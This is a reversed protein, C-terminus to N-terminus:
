YQKEWEINNKNLFEKFLNITEKGIGRFNLLNRESYLIAEGVTHVENAKLVTVLRSDLNLEPNAISKRLIPIKKMQEYKDVFENIKLIQNQYELVTNLAAIYKDYSIEIKNGM